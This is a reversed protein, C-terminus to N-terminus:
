NNRQHKNAVNLGVGAPNSAIINLAPQLQVVTKNAMGDPMQQNTHSHTCSCTVYNDSLVICCQHKNALFSVFGVETLVRGTGKLVNEYHPM